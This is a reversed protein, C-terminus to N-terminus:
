ELEDTKQKSKEYLSKMQDMDGGSEMVQIYWNVIGFKEELKTIQEKLNANEERLSM